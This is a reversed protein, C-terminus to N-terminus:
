KKGEFDSSFTNSKFCGKKIRDNQRRWELLDPEKTEKDQRM